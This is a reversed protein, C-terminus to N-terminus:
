VYATLDYKSLVDEVSGAGAAVVTGHLTTPRGNRNVFKVEFKWIKGHPMGDDGKYYDAGAITWDLQGADMAKWLRNVAEWSQDSFLGSTYHRLLQNVNRRAQDNTMGDLANEMPMAATMERAVREAAEVL